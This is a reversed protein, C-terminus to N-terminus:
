KTCICTCYNKLCERHQYSVGAQQSLKCISMKPSQMTCESIDLMKGETLVQPRSSRPTDVSGSEQFKDILQRVTNHHPVHSESFIEASKQRVQETYEGGCHFM